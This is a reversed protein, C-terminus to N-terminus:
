RPNLTIEIRRNRQRNAESDNSAIPHTQGYGVPALHYTQDLSQALYQQISIAQQFSLERSIDAATQNDTHGGILVAAGPYNALDPIISNLISTAEATLRRQDPEFLLDSPLTVKLVHGQWQSAAASSGVDTAAMEAANPNADANDPSRASDSASSSSNLAPAAAPNAANGATSTPNPPSIQQNLAQLRSELPSNAALQGLQTELDATRYRLGQLETELQALTQEVQRKEAATLPAPPKPSTPTIPISEITPAPPPTLETPAFRPQVTQPSLSSQNWLETLRQIRQIFRSSRRLVIEQLPTSPSPAPYYHAATVGVLWAGSASVGLLLLRFIFTLLSRVRSPAPNIPVPTSRAKTVLREKAMLGIGKTEFSRTFKNTQLVVVPEVYVQYIM